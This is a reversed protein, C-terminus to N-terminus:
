NLIDVIRQAVSSLNPDDATTCDQLASIFTDSLSDPDVLQREIFFLVGTLISLQVRSQCSSLSEDVRAMYGWELIRSYMSQDCVQLVNSIFLLALERVEFRVDLPLISFVAQVLAEQTALPKIDVDGTNFFVLTARIWESRQKILGIFFGMVPPALFPAFSKMAKLMNSYIQLLVSTTCDDENIMPYGTYYPELAQVAEPFKATVQAILSLAEYKLNTDESEALLANASQLFALVTPPEFIEPAVKLCISVLRLDSEDVSEGMADFVGRLDNELLVEVAQPRVRLVYEICTMAKPDPYYGWILQMQHPQGFFGAYYPERVLYSVLELTMQLLMQSCDYDPDLIVLLPQLYQVPVRFFGQSALRLLEELVERKGTGGPDLRQIVTLFESDLLQGKAVPDGSQRDFVGEGSGAGDIM